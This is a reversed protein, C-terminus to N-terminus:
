PLPRISKVRYFRKAAASAAVTRTSVSGPDPAFPMGFTPDPQWVALLNPNTEILYLRAATSTWTVPSSTGGTNTAFATIRLRDSAIIPSTGDLYEDKDSIGDGDSDTTGNMVALSDPNTNQFEFADAIGDGDSDVGMAVHDTQVFRLVSGTDFENLTIWGCNASWVYGSLNGTFLSVRPTLVGGPFPHDPANFNLWGINAGYAYGRLLAVGPQSPDVVYNVGYDVQGSVLTNSYQIHNAPEVDNAAGDKRCMSIWGVNAGYIWGQCVFEGILVGHSGAPQNVDADHWNLWGINGGWSFANTNNITSAARASLPLALLSLLLALQKV